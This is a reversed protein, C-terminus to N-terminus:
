CVTRCLRAIPLGVGSVFRYLITQQFNGSHKRSAKTFTQQFNDSLRRFTEPIYKSITRFTGQLKGSLMKEQPNVSALKSPRKATLKSPWKSHRTKYFLTIDPLRSKMFFIISLLVLMFFTVIFHFFSWTTNFSFFLFVLSVAAWDRHAGTDLAVAPERKEVEFTILIESDTQQYEGLHM